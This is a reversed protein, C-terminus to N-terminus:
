LPCTYAPSDPVPTWSPSYTISAAMMGRESPTLGNSVGVCGAQQLAAMESLHEGRLGKTLAGLTVVRAARTQQTRHRILEVVAAQEPFMGEGVHHALKRILDRSLGDSDPDSQESPEDVRVLQAALRYYEENREAVDDGPSMEPDEYKKFSIGTRSEIDALAQQIKKNHIM